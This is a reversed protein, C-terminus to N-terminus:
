RRSGDRIRTNARSTRSSTGSTSENSRPSSSACRSRFLKVYNGDPEFIQIRDNGADAVYIRGLGDIAVARPTTFEGPEASTGEIWEQECEEAKGLTFDGAVEQPCSPEGFRVALGRWPDQDDPDATVDGYDPVPSFRIVWNRVTDAECVLLSDEHDRALGAPQHVFRLGEGEELGGTKYRRTLIGYSSLGSFDDYVYRHVVSSDPDSLYLFTRAGGVAEIGAGSTTMAVARQVDPLPWSGLYGLESADYASVQHADAEWVFIIEEADDACLAVPGLLGEVQADLGYEQDRKALSGTASLVYLFGKAVLLQVPEEDPFYEDIYYTTVGFLGSPTPITIKEGCGGVVGLLGTLVAALASLGLAVRLATARKRNTNDNPHRSVAMRM